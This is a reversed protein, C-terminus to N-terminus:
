EDYYFLDAGAPPTFDFDAPTLAAAAADNTLQIEVTQNLNDRITMHSIVAGSLVVTLQQFAPEAVSPVLTFTNDAVLEIRYDQNLRETDGALIQLPSGHTGSNVPRRTVTELDIDHHWLFQPTAVILQLDPSNIEWAFWGPKLLRYNGSSLSLLQGDATHQRQEFQGQLQTIGSLRASLDDGAEDAHVRVMDFVLAAGLVVVALIRKM